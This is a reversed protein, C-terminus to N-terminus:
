RATTPLMTECTYPGIQPLTGTTPIPGVTFSCHGTRWNAEFREGARPRDLQLTGGYGTILPSPRGEGVVDIGAPLPSGDPLRIQMTASLDRSIDFTAAAVGKYSPVVQLVDSHVQASIPLDGNDVSIKNLEHARLGTVLAHGEGDTTTALNNERYIKIGAAGPVTVLAFGDSSSQAAFFMGSTYGLSGEALVRASTEKNLDVVQANFSAYPTRWTAEAQARKTEGNSAVVRWGLGEDSPTAQSVDVTTTTKGNQRNITASATQRDGLPLTLSLGVSAVRQRNATAGSDTRAVYTNLFVAGLQISHNLSLVKAEDGGSYRLATYALGLSGYRRGLSRGLFLQTQGTTHTQSDLWAVQMFGASASQRSASFSWESAIHAFSVRGLTGSGSDQSRSAAGHLGFEGLPAWVWTLGAGAVQVQAGAEGHLEMTATESLGRRWNGAAFPSGYDNSQLGYNLRSWGVNVSYDSLGARLLNTSVYYPTTVTRRVGLADSVSFSMEGAGSLVPVNSLSFPGSDVQGQYHLTNNVYAELTSAVASGGTLSPVPYSIYGPSLGFQTGFQVGAFRSPTSWAANQTIADGVTLRTLRDPDDYRYYSDLRVMKSLSSLGTANQYASQGVLVSNALLGWQGSVTSDLLGSAAIGNSDHQLAMSYNVFAANVSPTPSPRNAAKGTLASAVFATVPLRVQATQTSEELAVSGNPLAAPDYYDAGEVVATAQAPVIVRWAQLDARSFLLKGGHRLASRAPGEATGNVEVDIIVPTFVRDDAIVQAQAM